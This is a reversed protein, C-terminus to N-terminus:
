ARRLLSIALALILLVFAMLFSGIGEWGPFAQLEYILDYSWKCYSIVLCLGGSLYWAKRKQLIGVGILLLVLVVGAVNVVVSTDRAGYDLDTSAFLVGITLCLSLMPLRKQLMRSFGDDFFITLMIGVILTLYCFTLFRWEVSMSGLWLGYNPEYILEGLGLIASLMVPFSSKRVLGTVFLMGASVALPLHLVQFQHFEGPQLGLVPSLGLLLLNVSLHEWAFQFRLLALIAYFVICSVNAILFPSGVDGQLVSVFQQYPQSGEFWQISILQVLYPIIMGWTRANRSGTAMLLFAIALIIPTLFYAGFISPLEMAEDRSLVLVPDFSMALTFARIALSFILIGIWCWPYYPYAWPTGNQKM